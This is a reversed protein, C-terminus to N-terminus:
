SGNECVTLAQGQFTFEGNVSTGPDAGFYPLTVLDQLHYTFGSLTYPFTGFNTENELPDGNELIGCPTQNGNTNVVLPDDAWEGIEHSLASVDQAFAGSHDVYTAFAYSNPSAVLGTASHYGGVCCQHNQTLYIDYALFIPFTNPQIKLSTILARVQSDFWNFDVLGANFGFVVGTGGDRRPPSLTQVSTIAPNGLLLHSGTDTTGWFNARQYADIYQTSGMDVGPGNNKDALFDVGSAFLPSAVTNDVVTKTGNVKTGPDFTTGNSLVIKIPIIITPITATQNLSPETGVMNFKHTTAGNTFSGNWTMLPTGATGGGGGGGPRNNKAAHLTAAPHKFKPKESGPEIQLDQAILIGSLCCIAFAALGLRRPPKFIM